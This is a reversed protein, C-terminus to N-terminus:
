KRKAKLPTLKDSPNEIQHLGVRKTERVRRNKIGLNHEYVIM